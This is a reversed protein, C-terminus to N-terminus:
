ALVERGLAETKTQLIFFDPSPDRAVGQEQSTKAEYERCKHASCKSPNWELGM